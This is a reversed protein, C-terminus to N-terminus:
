EVRQERRWHDDGAVVNLRAIWRGAPVQERSLLAGAERGPSFTVTITEPQGIPRRLEATVIADSPVGETRIALRDGSREAQVSWGLAEQREAEDLWGNFKQSAVYSNEVVVGSFSGTAFSAMTFNVAIVVGFSGVMVALMKKGTFESKTM